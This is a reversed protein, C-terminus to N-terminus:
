RANADDRDFKFNAPLKGRFERFRQLLEERDPNHLKLGERAPKGPTRSVELERRGIIQIEISDGEKLELAVVVAAPLRVALSDGWKEVRM